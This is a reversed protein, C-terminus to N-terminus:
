SSRTGSRSGAPPILGAESADPCTSWSSTSLLLSASLQHRLSESFPLAMSLHGRLTVPRFPGPSPEVVAPGGSDLGCCPRGATGGLAVCDSFPPVLAYMLELSVFRGHAPKLPIRKRSNAKARESSAATGAHAMSQTASAPPM